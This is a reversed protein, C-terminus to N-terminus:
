LADAPHAQPRGHQTESTALGKSNKFDARPEFFRYYDAPGNWGGTPLVSSPAIHTCAPRRAGRTIRIRIGCACRTHTGKLKLYVTKKAPKKM